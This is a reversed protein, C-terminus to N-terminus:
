NNSAMKYAAMVATLVAAVMLPASSYATYATPAPNCYEKTCSCVKGVVGKKTVDNCVLEPIASVECNRITVPQGSAVGTFTSCWAGNCANVGATKFPDNCVPGEKTGDCDYCMMAESGILQTWAVVCFFLSTVVIQTM